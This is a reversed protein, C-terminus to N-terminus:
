RGLYDESMLLSQFEELFDVITRRDSWVLQPMAAAWDGHSSAAVRDFPHYFARGNEWDTRFVLAFRSDVKGKPRLSPELQKHTEASWFTGTPAAARYGTLDTMVLYRGPSNPREAATLWFAVNPWALNTPVAPPSAVEWRRKLVGCKYGADELDSEFLRQEPSKM